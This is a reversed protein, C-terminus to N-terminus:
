LGLINKIDNEIEISDQYRYLDFIRQMEESLEKQWWGKRRTGNTKLENCYPDFSDRKNKLTNPKVNLINSIIKIAESFNMSPFLGEHDFRSLYYAVKNIMDRSGQDIIIAHERSKQKNNIINPEIINPSVALDDIGSGLDRLWSIFGIRNKEYWDNCFLYQKNNITYIKKYYRPYGNINRQESLPKSVDVLKLFPYNINFKDKSYIPSQLLNIISPTLIDKNILSDLSAKVLEGIKFDDNSIINILKEDDRKENYNYENILKELQESDNNDIIPQLQPLVFPKPKFNLDSGYCETFWVCIEYASELLVKADTTSNNEEHAALNGAKRIKHLMKLLNYDIIGESNLTELRSDQNLFDDQIKEYVLINKTIRECLMRLKILTSNPDSYLYREALEGLNSLSPWKNELFKFNSQFM